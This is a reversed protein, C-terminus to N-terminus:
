IQALRWEVFGVGLVEEKGAGELAGRGVSDGSSMLGLKVSGGARHEWWRYAVHSGDGALYVSVLRASENAGGGGSVGVQKDEIVIVAIEDM